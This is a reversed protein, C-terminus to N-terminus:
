KESNHNFIFFKASFYKKSLSNQKQSMNKTRNAVESMEIFFNKDRYMGFVALIYDLLFTKMEEKKEKTLFEYAKICHRAIKEGVIKQNFFCGGEDFDELKPFYKFKEFEMREHHQFSVSFCQFNIM